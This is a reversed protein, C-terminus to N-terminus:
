KIKELLAKKKEAFENETLVGQEKLAALKSIQDIAEDSQSAQGGSNSQKIGNPFLSARRSMIHTKIEENRIDEFKVEHIFDDSANQKIHFVLANKQLIAGAVGAGLARNIGRSNVAIGTVFAQESGSMGSSTEINLLREWPIVAQVDYTQVNFFTIGDSLACLHMSHTKFM